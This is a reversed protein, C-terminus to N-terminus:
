AAIEWRLCRLSREEATLAYEGLNIGAYPMVVSFGLEVMRETFEDIDRFARVKKLTPFAVLAPGSMSGFATVFEVPFKADGAAVEINGVYEYAYEELSPEQRGVNAAMDCAFDYSALIAKVDIQDNLSQM